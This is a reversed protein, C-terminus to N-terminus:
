GDRKEATPQPPTNPVGKLVLVHWLRRFQTLTDEHSAWGEWAKPELEVSNAAAGINAADLVGQGAIRKALPRVPYGRFVVPVEGVSLTFGPHWHLPIGYKTSIMTLFGGIPHDRFAPDAVLREVDENLRVKGHVQAEIFSDLARGLPRNQPDLFPKQLGHRLQDLFGAVTLDDVGFAGRSRKLQAVVHAVVPDFADLTGTHEHSDPEQTGGFTFSSRRSVDPHLLLYCSGFRPAPGNPYYMLELAGYKPRGSALADSGHYAGGFVRMEWADREGGPFATPSGSSLGTEFQSRYVGDHLLGEAVSRGTRDVREPHFHLAVRAHTYLNELADNYVNENLATRGLISCISARAKSSREVARARVHELASRQFPLLNGWWPSETMSTM